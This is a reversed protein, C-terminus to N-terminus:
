LFLDHSFDEGSTIAYGDFNTTGEANLVEEDLFFNGTCQRSPRKLIALAADAMIEPKRGRRAAAEGGLLNMVAAIAIITRPWLANVALGSERPM